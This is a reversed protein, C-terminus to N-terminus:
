RRCLRCARLRVRRPRAAHRGPRHDAPGQRSPGADGTAGDGSDPRPTLDPQSAADAAADAADAADANMLGEFTERGLTEQQMLVTVLEDLKDRYKILIERGRQEGTEVIRKIEQDIQEATKESYDRQEGFERGLFVSTSSSGFTRPGLLESMGYQTVMSRAIGTAQQLDM